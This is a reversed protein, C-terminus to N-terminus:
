VGAMKRGEALLRAVREPSDSEAYVRLLPETGSFRILLWSGDSLVFHHGDATSVRDVRTNDISDARNSSLRSLIAQREEAPFRIDVRDYHHPGVQSYLYDLLQSPTRQERTMLDLFFLGSVIGDRELVHGRYAYGGSEEGGILANELAMKPAVYKFGVPTQCVPVDYLEGLRDLMGSSTITRVIAGRQGRVKLLYLALLSFVQLTTLYVGKEDVVGIRDADGDTALGVSAGSERVTACLETLNQAIPEPRIRPFFPNREGHLETIEAAGGGLIRTFYGAGAGFMSDVVIRLRSRRLTELDILGGIHQLYAPAPDFMEVTGQAAAEDLATRRVTGSAQARAVREELETLIEPPAASAQDARYKFGNWSRPNHSATIIVGGGANKEMIAHTIVPTPASQDCLYVKVGNAAVVEAAAAAFDESAFRTDYGIVLGRHAVGAAKLYDAVAQACYRVNEFTFDEAIIGRWGDTGFKIAATM